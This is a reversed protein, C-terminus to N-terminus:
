EQIPPNSLGAIVTAMDDPLPAAFTMREGTIPHDFGITTSHLMMRPVRLSQRDGRYRADGVVAHGISGMHVRIQHTRGTDLRCEVLSVEVPDVFTELVSYWTRAERGDASVAMRTKDRASRGIPADILGSPASPRGWVLTTYIREIEHGAMQERLEEFAAASRAVLMLGSTDKDLRHVIGPREREGLSAIEPYQALVGHVLTGSENGAGPHVVLGAPKDIVLLDDDIYVIPVPISPDPDLPAVPADLDVSVTVVDGETVRRSRVTVTEGNLAILGDDLWQAVQSRSASTMMAVMRDIREDALAAPVIEEMGAM